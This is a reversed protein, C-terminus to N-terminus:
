TFVQVSIPPGNDSAITSGNLGRVVHKKVFLLEKQQGKSKSYVAGSEAGGIGLM